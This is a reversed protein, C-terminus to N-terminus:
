ANRLQQVVDHAMSRGASAYPTSVHNFVGANDMNKKADETSARAVIFIEENCRRAALAIYINEADSGVSAVLGAAHAVRAEILVASDHAEGLKVTAGAAIAEDVNPQRRDIVVVERGQALLARAVERGINGYGCVIFHGTM